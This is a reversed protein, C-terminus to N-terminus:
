ATVAAVTDLRALWTRAGMLEFIARAEDLLPKAEDLRGGNVLWRSYDVLVPALWLPEELNRAAALALAFAEAAGDDDGAAAAVNGRVRGLAVEAHRGRRAVPIEAVVAAVPLALTADGLDLALTAAENTYVATGGVWGQALGLRAAPEIVGLASVDDGELLAVVFRRYLSLGELQRDTSTDIDDSVLGLWRQATAEDHREVAARALVLAGFVHSPIVIRQPLPLGEALAFADDYRGQALLEPVLGALGFGLTFQTQGRARALEYGDRVHRAAEHLRDADNEIVVLNNYARLASPLLDHDLAIALAERMLARSEYPRSKLLLAKTNLAESLVRPLVQDEAIGLAMEVRELATASDGQFNHIRAAEAALLAIDEDPEDQALVALAPELLQLAEAGRGQAWLALSLKATARAADHARGAGDLLDRAGRFRVEATTADNAGSLVDGARELLRAQEVPDETLSVADDFARCADEAAGLSAAREGARCLWEHALTRVEDADADEPAAAYADRYHAAIM